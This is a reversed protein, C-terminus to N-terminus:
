KTIAQQVHNAHRAPLNTIVKINVLRATQAPYHPNALLIVFLLNETVSGM